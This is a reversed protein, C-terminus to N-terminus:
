AEGINTFVLESYEGRSAGRGGVSSQRSVEICRSHPSFVSRISSHAANTLVYNVERDALGSVVAQLRSQDEMSFLRQNYKIFGNDNHSVTYPPDLFVLDGQRVRGLVSGFDAAFVRATALATSAARLNSEKIFDKQRYGYPVNYQGKQNVRFIGNFSTQNLFIFRAAREVPETPDSGRVLYYAEKSNEFERLALVLDDVRDRVVTYTDILQSNTDSLFSAETPALEFFVAGGGLFPEHYRAIQRDGLLERLHPRLWRKGGAWRLFPQPQLDGTSSATDPM